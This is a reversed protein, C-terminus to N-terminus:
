LRERVKSRNSLPHTPAGLAARVAASWFELVAYSASCARLVADFFGVVNEASLEFAALHQSQSLGGLGTPLGLACLGCGMLSSM